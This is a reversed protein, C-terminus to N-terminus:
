LITGAESFDRQKTFFFFFFFIGYLYIEKKSIKFGSRIFELERLEADTVVKVNEDGLASFRM